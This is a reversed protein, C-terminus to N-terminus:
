LRFGKKLKFEDFKVVLVYALLCGAVTLIDYGDFGILHEIVSIDM